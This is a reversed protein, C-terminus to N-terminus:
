KISSLKISKIQDNMGYQKLDRIEFLNGTGQITLPAGEFNTHPFFEYKYGKPIIAKLSSSKKHYNKIGQVNVQSLDKLEYYRKGYLKLCRKSQM